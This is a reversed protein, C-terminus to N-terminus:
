PIRPRFAFSRSYSELWVKLSWRPPLSCVRFYPMRGDVLLFPVKHQQVPKIHVGQSMTHEYQQETNEQTIQQIQCHVSHASPLRETTGRSGAGSCELAEQKGHDECHQSDKGVVEELDMTELAIEPTIFQQREELRQWDNGPSPQRNCVASRVEDPQGILMTHFGAKDV